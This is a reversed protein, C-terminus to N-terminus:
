QAEALSAAAAPTLSEVLFLAVESPRSDCSIDFITRSILFTIEKTFHTNGNIM